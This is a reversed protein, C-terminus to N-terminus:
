RGPARLRAACGLGQVERRPGAARSAPQWPSAAQQAEVGPPPAPLIRARPSLSTGPPQWQLEGAPTRSSRRSSAPGSFGSPDGALSDARQPGLKEQAQLSNPGERVVTDLIGSLEQVHVEDIHRGRVGEPLSKGGIRVDERPLM